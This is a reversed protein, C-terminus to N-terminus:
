DEEIVTYSQIDSESDQYEFIGYYHVKINYTGLTSVDFRFYARGEIDLESVYKYIEKNNKTIIFAVMGDKVPRNTAINKVLAVCDLGNKEIYSREITNPIEELITVTNESFSYEVPEQSSINNSTAEILNYVDVGFDDCIKKAEDIDKIGYENLSKNIKDIRRDYGEFTISM